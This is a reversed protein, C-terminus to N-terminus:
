YGSEWIEGDDKVMEEVIERGEERQRRKREDRTILRPTMIPTIPTFPMYPSYPVPMGATGPTRASALPNGYMNSHGYGPPRRELITVKTQNPSLPGTGPAAATTPSLVSTTSSSYSPHSRLPLPRGAFSRPTPAGASPISVNSANATASTQIAPPPGRSATSRRSPTPLPPSMPPAPPPYAPTLPEEDSAMRNHLSYTPTPVPSSIPLGRITTIRSGNTDRRRSALSALSSARSAITSTPSRPSAPLSPGKRPASAGGAKPPPFSPPPLKRPSIPNSEVTPSSVEEGEGEDQEMVAAYLREMDQERQARDKEIVREDFNFGGKTPSFSSVGKMAPSPWVSQGRSGPSIPTTDNSKILVPRVMELDLYRSSTKAGNRLRRGAFLLAVGILVVTLIYSGAIACLQAPLLSTDRSAGASLPAGKDPPPAPDNDIFGGSAPEILTWLLTSVLAVKLHTATATTTPSWRM